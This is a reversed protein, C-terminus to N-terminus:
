DGKAAAEVCLFAGVESESGLMSCSIESAREQWRAKCSSQLFNVKGCHICGPSCVMVVPLARWNVGYEELSTHIAQVTSSRHLAVFKLAQLHDKRIQGRGADPHSKSVILVVEEDQLHTVQVGFM